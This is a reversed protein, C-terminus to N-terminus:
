FAANTAANKKRVAAYVKAPQGQIEQGIAAAWKECGNCVSNAITVLKRAVITIMIKHPKEANCLRDALTRLSSNPHTAVLAARFMENRLASRNSRDSHDGTEAMREATM